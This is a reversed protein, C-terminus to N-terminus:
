KKVGKKSLNKKMTAMDRAIGHAVKKQIVDNFKESASKETKISKM